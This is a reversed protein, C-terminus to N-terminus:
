EALENLESAILQLKDIRLLKKIAAERKSATSRTHGGELYVVKVPRHGRFYRARRPGAHESFRREVDLAIGTYLSNDTCSIIYVKWDVGRYYCNLVGAILRMCEGTDNHYSERGNRTTGAM